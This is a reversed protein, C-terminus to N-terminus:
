SEGETSAPRPPRVWPPLRTGREPRAHRRAQQAATPSGPILTQTAAPIPYFASASAIDKKEQKGNIVHNARNTPQGTKFELNSMQGQSKFLQQCTQKIAAYLFQTM